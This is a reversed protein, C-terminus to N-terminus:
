SHVSGGQPEAVARLVFDEVSAAGDRGAGARARGSLLARASLRYSGAMDDWTTRESWVRSLGFGGGERLLVACLAEYYEDLRPGSSGPAFFDFRVSVEANGGQGAAAFGGLGAPTLELSDISVLVAPGGLPLASGHPFADLVEVESLGPGLAIMRGLAQKIGRLDM